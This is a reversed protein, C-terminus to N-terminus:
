LARTCSHGGTCNTCVKLFDEYLLLLWYANMEIILCEDQNFIQFRLDSIKCYILVKKALSLINNFMSVTKINHTLIHVLQCTM